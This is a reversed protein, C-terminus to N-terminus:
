KDETQLKNLEVEIQNIRNKNLGSVFDTIKLEIGADTLWQVLTRGISQVGIQYGVNNAKDPKTMPNTISLLERVFLSGDKSTAIRKVAQLFELEASLRRTDRENAEKKTLNGKKQINRVM